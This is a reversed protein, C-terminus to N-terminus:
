CPLAAEAEVGAAIARLIDAAAVSDSRSSGDVAILTGVQASYVVGDHDLGAQGIGITVAAGAVPGDTRVCAILACGNTAKPPRRQPDDSIWVHCDAEGDAIMRAVDFRWPDHEPFGRGFGTRPPFGTMWGSALAAGWGGESAPLLLGSARGTANLDSILGQLMELALAAASQGSYFFVPYRAKALAAAFKEFNKVPASVQRGACRGRLAALTAALGQGECVLPTAERKGDLAPTVDGVSFFAREGAVPLDPKTAALELLFRGYAKPLEGVVVVVDARRRAEGPAVTMGGRDTFLATEHALVAGDIHDYAAGVREALAIAARTGHVDTDFSFVPCRSSQLLKATEGAADQLQAERNGIWAVAM